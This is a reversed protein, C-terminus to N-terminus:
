LLTYFHNIVVAPGMQARIGSFYAVTQTRARSQRPNSSRDDVPNVNWKAACVHAEGSQAYALEHSRGTQSWRIYYMPMRWGKKQLPVL